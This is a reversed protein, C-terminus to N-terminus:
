IIVELKVNRDNLLNQLDPKRFYKKWTDNEKESDQLEWENGNTTFYTYSEGGDDIKIKKSSLRDYFGKLNEIKFAKFKEWRNDSDNWSQFILYEPNNLESEDSKHILLFKCPKNLFTEFDDSDTVNSKKLGLKTLSHIFKPNNTLLDLNLEDAFEDDSLDMKKFFDEVEVAGVSKLINDYYQSLSENLDIEVLNMEVQNSERYLKYNKLFLM